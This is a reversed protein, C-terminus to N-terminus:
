LATGQIKMKPKNHYYYNKKHSNHNSYMQQMKQMQELMMQQMKEAQKFFNKDDPMSAFLSDNITQPPMMMQAFDFPNINQNLGFNNLLSDSKNDLGSFGFDLNLNQLISDIQKPNKQGNSSWTMVYSSDYSIINGNNDRKIKVNIKINPKNTNKTTQSSAPLVALAFLVTLIGTFLNKKM